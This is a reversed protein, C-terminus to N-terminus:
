DPSRTTASHADYHKPFVSKLYSYVADFAAHRDWDGPKLLCALWLGDTMSSLADTVQTATVNTYAGEDVIQQCLALTAANYGNDYKACIKQYTPIAKTEGYFAFWVALKPRDSVMPRLDLQMLALLKDAPGPGAKELTSYFLSEYEDALYQLTQNLLNEKSRFHLNVIGQSLGAENAVDAMTTGGLGRKSLCKITARILQERRKRRSEARPDVKNATSNMGRTQWLIFSYDNM